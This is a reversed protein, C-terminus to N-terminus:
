HEKIRIQIDIKLLEYEMEIGKRKLPDDSAYDVYHDDIWHVTEEDHTVDSGLEDLDAFAETVYYKDKLTGRHTKMKKLIEIVAQLKDIEKQIGDDVPDELGDIEERMEALLSSVMRPCSYAEGITGYEEKTIGPLEQLPPIAGVQAALKDDWDGGSYKVTEMAAFMKLISEQRQTLQTM